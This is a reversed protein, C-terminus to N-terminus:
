AKSSFTDVKKMWFSVRIEKCDGGIGGDVAGLEPWIRGNNLKRRLSSPRKAIKFEVKSLHEDDKIDERNEIGLYGSDGYM